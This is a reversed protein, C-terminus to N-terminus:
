NIKDKSIQGYSFTAEMRKWFAKLVRWNNIGFEDDDEQSWEFIAKQYKKSLLDNGEIAHIDSPQSPLNDTIEVRTILDYNNAKGPRSIHNAPFLHFHPKEGTGQYESTIIEIRMGKPLKSNSKILAMLAMERLPEQEKLHETEPYLDNYTVEKEM